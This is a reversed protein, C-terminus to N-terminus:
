GERPRYLTLSAREYAAIVGRIGARNNLAARVLAAVREVKGSAIAQMWQKHNDLAGLKGILKRSDNLKTLRLTDIQRSKREALTILGAIPQYM